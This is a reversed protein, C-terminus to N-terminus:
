NIFDKLDREFIKFNREDRPSCYVAFEINKFAHLYDKIVTRSALAVVEPNNQFAGCGFAGLIITDCSKSLAVELIRRLRKEHIALLDSDKMKTQMNGDGVNYRNGSKRCLNPAACTIVDVYYWDSEAM